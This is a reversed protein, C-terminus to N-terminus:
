IWFLAMFMIVHLVIPVNQLLKRFIIHKSSFVKERTLDLDVKMWFWDIELASRILYWILKAIIMASGSSDLWNICANKKLKSLRALTHTCSPKKFKQM